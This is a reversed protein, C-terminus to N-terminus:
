KKWDRPTRKIMTTRYTPRKREREPARSLIAFLVVEAPDDLEPFRCPVLVGM